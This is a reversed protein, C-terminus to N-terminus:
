IVFEKRVDYTSHCQAELMLWHPGDPLQGLVSDLKPSNLAVKAGYDRPEQKTKFNLNGTCGLNRNM